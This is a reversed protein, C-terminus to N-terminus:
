APFNVNHRSRARRSGMGSIGGHLRARFTLAAVSRCTLCCYPIAVQSGSLRRMRAPRNRGRQVPCCAGPPLNQSELIAALRQAELMVDAARCAFTISSGSIIGSLDNSAFDTGKRHLKPPTNARVPVLGSLESSPSAMFLKAVRIPHCLQTHRGTVPRGSYARQNKHFRSKQTGAPASDRLSTSEDVPIKKAHDGANLPPVRRRQCRPLICDVHRKM